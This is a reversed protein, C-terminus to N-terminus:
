EDREVEHITRAPLGLLLGVVALTADVCAEITPLEFRPEDVDHAAEGGQAAVRVIRTLLDPAKGAAIRLPHDHDGLARLLTAAVLAQLRWGDGFETVSRVQGHTVRLLGDPVETLGVAAAAAALRARNVEGDLSLRDAVGALPWNRAIERFLRELARRCTMLVGRRRWMEAADGLEKVELWAALAEALPEDVGRQHIDLTLARELMVQARRERAATARRFEDFGGYITRGLIWDLGRGLGEEEVAVKAILQRLEPNSGRGFFDCAHWDFGSDSRGRPVYLYTVLFVPEPEPEITAVRDLDFRRLDVPPDGEDRWLGLRKARRELRGHRVAARLLERADPAVPDGNVKPFQM